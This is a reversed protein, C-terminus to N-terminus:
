IGTFLFDLAAVIEDRRHAFTAIREGLTRPSVGALQVTLLVFPEGGVEFVPHLKPVPRNDLDAAPVLPAVVATALGDVLDHHLVMLFPPYGAAANRHLDFQAM